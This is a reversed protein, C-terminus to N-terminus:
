FSAYIFPQIESSHFEVALQAVIAFAILKVIWPSLIFRAQLRQYVRPTIFQIAFATAFMATWVPRASLFYPIYATDFNFLINNAIEYCAQLNPARFPIWTICIFIYTVLWCLVTAWRSSPLHNTLPKFAKQIILAMGHIGGWIVFMWTSGHWLGAVLMTILNNLWTIIKGKRNGGLPIYLYDRFWTSLSIHWRHWFDAINTAHYPFNFNEKLRFGMMAALGIAMDSYGSFDCYIQISYGLLGMLNEFGSYATPDEFIYNNYLALYDAIVCKKIIGISILWLGTYLLRSSPPTAKRLQPILTNARTIPGAVIIPFFTLFFLFELISVDSPFRGKYVDVSYSIAQFTYFSIGVPLAINIFAFNSQMIENFVAISFNAYKFYALPALNIIILIALWLKRVAGHKTDMIGTLSWTMLATAPLLIMLVDNALYYFLMSFATVYLMMGIHTKRRLVSYIILFAIFLAWFTISAFQM